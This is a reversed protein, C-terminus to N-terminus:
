CCTLTTAYEGSVGLVPAPALSAVDLPNKPEVPFATQNSADVNPQFDVVVPTKELPVFDVTPTSPPPAVQSTTDTISKDVVDAQVDVATAAIAGDFVLRSELALRQSHATSLHKSNVQTHAVTKM